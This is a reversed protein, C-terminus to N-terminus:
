LLLNLVRKYQEIAAQYNFKVEVLKRANKAVRELDPHDLAKIVNQAICEPSNGRMLFGTYGNRIIDPISGVATALIPTGCAMAELMTNPLGETYSPLVLIKLENLHRPIEEYPIWGGVKVKDNLGKRDLYEEIQNHLRGDGEILFRIERRRELVKPIARVLPLIGKEESFRGIYGVFHDRECLQKRVKFQNFDLFHARAISIKAKFRDLNWEKILNPSYVVIRSSLICNIDQLFKLPKSLIDNKAESSKVSSAAFVLIVNKKMLRATFMPIILNQGMMYFIYFDVNKAIKIVGFSIKLQTFLYNVVRAFVNSGTKHKVGLVRIGAYKKSLLSTSYSGTIVYLNQSFFSLIKLLNLTAIVSAESVIKSAPFNVVAINLRGRKM